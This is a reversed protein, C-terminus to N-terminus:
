RFGVQWADAFSLPFDALLAFVAVVERAFIVEAAEIPLKAGIESAKFVVLLGIVLKDALTAM